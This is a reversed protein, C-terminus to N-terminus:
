SKIARNQNTSKSFSQKKETLKASLLWGNFSEERQFFRVLCKYMKLIQSEVKIIM